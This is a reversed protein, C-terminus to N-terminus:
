MPVTILLLLNIGRKVLICELLLRVARKNVTDWLAWPPRDVGRTYVGRSASGRSASGGPPLGAPSLGGEDQSRHHMEVMRFPWQLKTGIPININLFTNIRFSMVPEIIVTVDYYSCFSKRCILPAVWFPLDLCYVSRLFGAIFLLWHQLILFPFLWKEM